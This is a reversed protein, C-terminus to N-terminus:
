SQAKEAFLTYARSLKGSISSAEILSLLTRPMTSTLHIDLDFIKLTYVCIPLLPYM